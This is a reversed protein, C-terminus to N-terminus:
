SSEAEALVFGKKTQFSICDYVTTDGSVTLPVVAGSSDVVYGQYNYNENLGATPFILEEGQSFIKEIKYIMGLFELVLTYQQAVLALNGTRIVDLDCTDVCGLNLTNLCCCASM